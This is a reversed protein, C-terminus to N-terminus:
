NNDYGQKICYANMNVAAMLSKVKLKGDQTTYNRFVRGDYSYALTFKYPWGLPQGIQMTIASVAMVRTLDVQIYEGSLQLKACWSTAGNLRGNYPETGALWSSATIFSDPISGDEM